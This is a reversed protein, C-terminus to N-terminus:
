ANDSLEPDRHDIRWTNLQELLEQRINNYRHNNWLNRIEEPDNILDYLEGCDQELYHVLKWERTRMMTMLKIDKLMNDANHEAFVVERGCSKGQAAALASIASHCDDLKVGALEFLMPVLDMQQLLADCNINSKLREPAVVIAPVRTICDYMTWKQIHGHEGLCDGHDSTFIIISDDLYGKNELTNLIEGIQEDILSINAAYHRHLRKLNKSPIDTEWRVADHINNVMNQRYSKQPAPQHKLEEDSSAPFDFEVNEYMDLFRQPPDYPPHPGPFGIQLFLPSEAERQEIVWKAMTGVFIDPHYKEELPWEFAGLASDFDPYEDRYSFRSPKRIGSNNLFKDWEDYFNGHQRELHLPRDKNEVVFRQDFGCPVDMPMTHMKGVNVTHYGATNLKEVWSTDWNCSNNYTKTEHPYRMNFFSARSPVCSPATCYCQEFSIGQKVLCDINPTKLKNYGLAGITDFRQQDTMILIINPNKRTAM